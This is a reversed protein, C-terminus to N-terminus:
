ANPDGVADIIYYLNVQIVAQEASNRIISFPRKRLLLVVESSGVTLAGKLTNIVSNGILFAEKFSSAANKNNGSSCLIKTEVPVGIQTTDPVEQEADEEFDAIVGAYPPRLGNTDSDESFVIADKIGIAVKNTNLKAAIAATVEDPTIM